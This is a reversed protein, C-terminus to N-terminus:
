LWERDIVITPIHAIEPWYEGKDFELLPTLLPCNRIHLTSLSSPMGKVRLSQLDPCDYIILQSLSSPLTLESLSQLNCRNGIHLIQLLTLHSFSSCQSQIQPLNGEIDLYQLSTLNKLHQSSLAKFLPLCNRAAVEAELRKSLKSKDYDRLQLNIPLLTRLRESKFFPKLKEFDGDKGISYSMHSGKNEELRIYLNSSAIQALDNVLDHMLYEEVDRKSSESAMEFLSRLRLELFYQNGSNLQHVLGNAIWEPYNDNWVDDLVVLFRKGNLKEKLKVQLQNLNDDVKLDTSGIEQLLGKTILLNQLIKQM